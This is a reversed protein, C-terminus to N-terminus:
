RCAGTLKILQAEPSPSKYEDMLLNFVALTLEASMGSHGQSAFTESLEEVCKGTAGEYDSDKSYLGMENLRKMFFEHRTTM